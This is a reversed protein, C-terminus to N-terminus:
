PSGGGPGHPHPTLGSSDLGQPSLVAGRQQGGTDQSSAGTQLGVSPAHGPGWCSFKWLLGTGAELSQVRSLLDPPHGLAWGRHSDRGQPFLVKGELSPAESIVWGWVRGGSVLPAPPPLLSFCGGSRAPCLRAPCCCAQLCMRRCGLTCLITQLSHTTPPSSSLMM